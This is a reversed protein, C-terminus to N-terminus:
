ETTKVRQVSGRREREREDIEDYSQEAADRVTSSGDISSTGVRLSLLSSYYNIRVEFDFNNMTNHTQQREREREREREM